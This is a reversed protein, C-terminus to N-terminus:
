STLESLLQQNIVIQEERRLEELLNEVYASYFEARKRQNLQDAIGAKEAEFLAEDIESKEAVQFVVYKGAVYVPTGTEGVALNSVQGHMDPSFRLIDDVNAGKKFYDTLTTSLGEQKALAEFSEASGVANFFQYATDRAVTGGQEEKYRSTLEDKLEAFEPIKSPKVDVVEVLVKRNVATLPDTVSGAATSFVTQMDAGSLGLSPLGQAQTFYGSEQVTLANESAAEDLSKGGKIAAALTTALEASQRQSAKMRANFEALSRRAADGGEKKELTQIIHFGYATRVLDSIQGQALDFAANEFEPVMQGRGFFGLDGGRAASGPDESNERALKEFDAGARLQNLLDTAKAKAADEDEGLSILIHRARVQEEANAGPLEEAIMEETLELKLPDVNAVLYKVKREEPVRFEEQHDTFYKQLEEDTVADLKMEAPDFVVYRVRSEQNTDLFQQRVETPAAVIGDTLIARFKDALLDRRMSEEFEQTSLNNAQLLQKYRETGIFQGNEQFLRAISEALETSPVSLGMEAAKYEVAYRSILQNLAQQEIGLQRLMAENQGNAGYIQQYTEYMRRYVRGFEASTIPKGAVKAVERAGMGPAMGTPTDVFLLVTTLGLAIIVLLMVWKLWERKRRFLPLM